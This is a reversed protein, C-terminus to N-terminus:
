PTAPPQSDTEGKKRTEALIAALDPDLREAGLTRLEFVGPKNRHAFIVQAPTTRDKSNTNVLDDIVGVVVWDTTFDTTAGGPKGSKVPAGVCDGFEVTDPMHHWAGGSLRSVIMSSMGLGLSGAGVKAEVVWFRSPKKITAQTWESAVLPLEPSEALKSQSSQLQKTRGLFPNLLKVVCRYEYTEGPTAHIDHCWVKVQDDKSLNPGIEKPETDASNGTSKSGGGAGSKARLADLQAQIRDREMTLKYRQVLKNQSVPPEGTGKGKDGRNKSPDEKLEGGALDIRKVLEDIAAQLKDMAPSSKVPPKEDKVPAEPKAATVLPLFAPQLLQLQATPTEKFAKYVFNADKVPEGSRFTFQGPLPPVITTPGWSGDILKHRREFVVDLIYVSNKRWSAPIAERPPTAKDDKKTLEERIVALNVTATPQTWIIDLDESSWGDRAKLAAAIAPTASAAAGDILGVSQVIPKDMVPVAGSFVPEYYLSQEAGRDGRFLEGALSPAIQPLPLEGAVSANSSDVTATPAVSLSQLEPKKTPDSQNKQIQRGRNELKAAVEGLEVDQGGLKVISGTPDLFDMALWAGMALSVAVLIAKEFHREIPHIGKMPQGARDDDQVVQPTQQPRSHM